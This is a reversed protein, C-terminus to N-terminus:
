FVDKLYNVLDDVAEELPKLAKEAENKLSETLQKLTNGETKLVAVLQEKFRNPGQLDIGAAFAAPIDNPDNSKLELKEYNDVIQKNNKRATEVFVECNPDSRPQDTFPKGFTFSVSEADVDIGQYGTKEVAAVFAKRMETAPFTIRLDMTLQEPTSLVGWKFGTLWWHKEPGRSFLPVGDRKLTFSMELRENNNACDFFKSNKDDDPRKGLTTDLIPWKSNHVYVGIEGGTELGYQGKWLEIMWDKENYHFFFPECDIIASITAPAALDYAYAYGFKRQWANMRSFIIKQDLDYEFGAAVVAHALESDPTWKPSMKDEKAIFLEKLYNLGTFTDPTRSHTM